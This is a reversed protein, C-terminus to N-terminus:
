EEENKKSGRKKYIIMGTILVISFGFLMLLTFPIEGFDGTKITRAGNNGGPMKVSLKGVKIKVTQGRDNLDEHSAVETGGAFLKEFVVIEKGNLNSADFTFEIDISGEKKDPTFTKEATVNKGNIVLPEGTSKDMLTGKVTYEKGVILDKYTVTDVITVDKKAVAEQTGTDKDKATTQIQSDPFEVTQGKDSIDEHAAVETGNIYLKEFVVVAHGKLVGADFTFEIDISGDKKDPIFTKEATVNKENIVLPEGTSKDMLTGKVTYEKGVILDTYTVTDVITMDKKPVAEQTGTDQDKATTKIQSDPFEVTQGKDTIDEHAAVETGYIYLKEFVVIAHGKLAGADFTFEIDISGDKKEPTFTREATVSKGDIILPEGTSKDMLTGKVTYEKGVILDTYTVTDVITMDRKPVAEQTGTDQDKATTKIQSDPFEVTQGKDTIDEHAAFEVGDVYAKEFVVISQGKLGSADFTFVVDVTGDAKDAVFITEGHVEEGNILLPKQTSKDMLTGKVTYEKGVQLNKFEVTDVITMDKKPVAEQTGTDQDKATTGILETRTNQLEMKGIEQGDILGDKDVTMEHVTEDLVYGPITEVEQFCYTGSALYKISILGEDDTTYTEKQAIGPDLEETMDKNWVAFTVGSLTEGTKSDTKLLIVHTPLNTVVVSEQVLATLQDKYKLEAKYTKGDLVFGDPQRTETVAYKGLYLEKSIAKGDDGTTLTGALAGKELRLTGDPTVIDETATIDFVAGALAEGTEQDAKEIQIRGKVNEDFYEVILPNEWTAGETVEFKLLDGKLYGEPANLEELYYVGYKLKEPFTFQGNGDTKFTEHVEKNPYYTTMTIPNKESNLLRFETDKVPIVNGTGKDKKVVTAPSVILKDEKYIGKLTTGDESITVEFPEIPKFGSPYKTETVIYTDYVLSGKPYEKSATTAYGKEDTVIKMVEKGTTKSTFTFEVGKLGTLTDNDEEENEALKIIEVDGRIVQEKSEVKYKFVRTTIDTPKGKVTYSNGDVLYGNSNVTEKVAYEGTPLEKSTAKGKADTVLTDVIKNEQDRVEYTAGELTAAGQGEGELTESDLKVLEIQIKQPTEPITPQNYTNVAEANGESTIKRVFIEDNLLYGVPAKTEQITITGLPITIDGTSMYYFEDGSVKYKDGLRTFGREDTKLVWSRLVTGGQKAPDSDYYGGYYKVTFEADKLSASGQPKDANTEADIKGLLISVPDSQPIDTVRVTATKDAEVKIDHAKVDIAFGKPVQLEKVWYNGADLEVENSKGSANTTLTAVQNSCTSDSYVGYKAGDLSYCSNGATLTPNSSSKELVLKGVPIKEVWVIDQSDNYAVYATYKKFEASGIISKADNIYSNLEIIDAESLGTTSGEYAYGICAHALSIADNKGDSGGTAPNHGYTNWFAENYMAGGPALLLLAKITDNNLQSIEYMGSPTPSNPQACYGSYTGAASKVTFETTAWSGYAHHAGPTITAMAGVTSRSLIAYEGVTAVGIVDGRCEKGLVYNPDDLLMGQAVDQEEQEPQELEEVPEITEAQEQFVVNLIMSDEQITTEKMFGENLIGTDAISEIEVGNEAMLQYSSAKYGEEPFLEIHLSDGQTVDLTKEDSDQISYFDGNSNRISVTGAGTINVAVSKGALATGEGDGDEVNNEITGNQSGEEAYITLPQFAVMLCMLLAIYSSIKRKLQRM